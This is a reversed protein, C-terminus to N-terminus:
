DRSSESVKYAGKPTYLSTSLQLQAFMVPSSRLLVKSMLHLLLISRNGTDVDGEEDVVVHKFWGRDREVNGIQPQEWCIHPRRQDRFWVSFWEQWTLGYELEQKTYSQKIKNKWWKLHLAGTPNGKSSLPNANQRTNRCYVQPRVNHEM